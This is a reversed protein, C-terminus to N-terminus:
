GAEVGLAVVEVFGEAAGGPGPGLWVMTQGLLGDVSRGSVLEGLLEDPGGVRASSVASSAASPSVASASELVLLVADAYPAATIPDDLTSGTALAFSNAFRAVAGGDGAIRSVLWVGDLAGVSALGDGPQAVAVVPVESGAERIAAVLEARTDGRHAAFVVDPPEDIGTTSGLEDLVPTWGDAGDDVVLEATVVGDVAEITSRFGDVLLSAVPEDPQVVVTRRWGQDLAHEAAVRGLTVADPGLLFVGDAPADLAPEISAPFLVPVRGDVLEVVRLGVTLSPPGIIALPERALLAGVADGAALASGGAGVAVVEVPRGDVGGGCTVLRAVHRAAEVADPGDGEAGVVPGLADDTVVGVVVPEEGPTPGPCDDLDVASLREAGWPGVGGAPSAADGDDDALTLDLPSGLALSSPPAMGPGAPPEAVVLPEDGWWGQSQGLVTVLAIALATGAVVGSRRRRTRARAPPRHDVGWTTTM